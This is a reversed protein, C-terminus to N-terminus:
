MYKEFIHNFIYSNIYASGSFWILMMVFLETSWYNGMVTLSIFPSIAVFVIFLTWPFHGLGMLLANKITNKVTNEFTSQLAMAYLFVFFVVLVAMLTLGKLITQAMGKSMYNIIYLDISPILGAVFLILWMITSQKFNEKFQRFFNRVIYGENKKAMKKTVGYLATTSAGITVIPICCVLFLINLIVLDVLKSVAEFFKGDISFM